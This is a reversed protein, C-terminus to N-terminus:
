VLRLRAADIAAGVRTLDPTSHRGEVVAEVAFRQLRPARASRARVSSGLHPLAAELAAESEWLYLAGFTDGTADSLFIKLRLGEMQRYKPVSKDAIYARLAELTGHTTSLDSQMLLGIM